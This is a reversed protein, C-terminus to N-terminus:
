KMRRRQSNVYDWISEGYSDPVVADWEVYPCIYSDTPRGESDYSVSQLFATYKGNDWLFGSLLLCSTGDGYCHMVWQKVGYGYKQPRQTSVFFGVEDNSGIWHWKRPDPDAHAVNSLAFVLLTFVALLVKKM